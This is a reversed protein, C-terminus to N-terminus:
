SYMFPMWRSVANIDDREIDSILTDIGGVAELYAALGSSERCLAQALETLRERCEEAASQNDRRREAIEWLGLVPLCTAKVTLGKAMAIRRAKAFCDVASNPNGSALFLRGVWKLLLQHPHEEVRYVRIREGIARRAPEDPSESMVALVRLLCLMDFPTAPQNRREKLLHSLWDMARQAPPTHEVTNLVAIYPHRAFASLAKEYDRAQWYLTTLYNVSMNHYVSTDPFFDLSREFYAAAEKSMEPNLRANFALAQGITGCMKGTLDDKQGAMDAARADVADKFDDLVDDFRFDNFEENYARTRVELTRERNLVPSGLDSGFRTMCADYTQKMRAPEGTYGKHNVLMLAQELLALILEKIHRDDESEGQKRQAIGLLKELLSEADSLAGKVLTRHTIREDIVHLFEGLVRLSVQSPSDQALRTLVSQRQAENLAQRWAQCYEGQNLLWDVADQHLTATPQLLSVSPSTASVREGKITGLRLYYCAIDSWSQELDSSTLKKVSFALNSGLYSFCEQHYQKWKVGPPLCKTARTSIYVVINGGACNLDVYRKVEGLLAMLNLGYLAQPSLSDFAFKTDKSIFYHNSLDDLERLLTGTLDDLARKPFSQPMSPIGPFAQPHLLPAMHLDQQTFCTSQRANVECLVKDLRKRLEVQTATTIFGGVISKMKGGAFGGAEDVYVSYDM